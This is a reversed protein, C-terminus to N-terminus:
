IEPDGVVVFAGWSLPHDPERNNRLHRIRKLQQERVREYVPKDSEEYLKGMMEATTKDPVSWLASVVTRAGAMLFARRLGYVGEGEEVTGLGTECASLVVMETGELDMAAVEYATLIGDEAGEVDAGKGHLNAGALALGSLLLPNEGLRPEEFRSRVQVTPNCTKQLYYGHTALHIVLCGPAKAKFSEESALAGTYSHVPEKSEKKWCKVIAEV